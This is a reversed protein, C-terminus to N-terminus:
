ARLGQTDRIHTYAQVYKLLAYFELNATIKGWCTASKNWLLRSCDWKKNTKYTVKKKWSTELSTNLFLFLIYRFLLESKGWSQICGLWPNMYKKTKSLGWANDDGYKRRRRWWDQRSSRNSTHQVNECRRVRERTNQMKRERRCEELESTSETTDLRSNWGNRAETVICRIDRFIWQKNRRGSWLRSVKKKM